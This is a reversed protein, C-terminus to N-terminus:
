GGPRGDRAAESRERAVESRYGALLKAVIPGPAGGGITVGDVAVVPVVERTTATVLVEDADLLEPLPVSREDVRLGLRRAVDLVTDRTIGALLGDSVPPTVLVDGHVIGVNGAAAELVHGDDHVLIAEDAGASRAQERATLATLYSVSKVQPLERALRVTIAAIGQEHVRPDVRLRHSTVVVTPGTGAAGPFPSSPDLTGPSTTLRLVSDRGGFAALNARVTASVAERLLDRDLRYGLTAAGTVARRLHADSRFPHGGYARITEFVGEGSRFARDFVSVTADGSRVLRDGVWVWPPPELDSM